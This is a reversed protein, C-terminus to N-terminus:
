KQSKEAPDPGRGGEEPDACPVILYTKIHHQQSLFRNTLWFELHSISTQSYKIGM